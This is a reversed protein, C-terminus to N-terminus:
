SSDSRGPIRRRPKAERATWERPMGSAGVPEGPRFGYHDATWWGTGGTRAEQCPSRRGCPLINRARFAKRLMGPKPDDHSGRRLERCLRLSAMRASVCCHWRANGRRDHLYEHAPIAEYGMTRQQPQIDSTHKASPKRVDRSRMCALSVPAARHGAWGVRVRSMTGLEPNTLAGLHKRVGYEILHRVDQAAQELKTVNREVTPRAGVSGENRAPDRRRQDFHVQCVM